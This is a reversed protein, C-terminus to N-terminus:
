KLVSRIDAAIKSIEASGERRAADELRSVLAYLERDREISGLKEEFGELKEKATVLGNRVCQRSVGMAEGIEALSMDEEASMSMFERQKETLFAGYYDLLLSLEAKDKM